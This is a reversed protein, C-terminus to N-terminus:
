GRHLGGRTDDRLRAVEEEVARRVVDRVADALQERLNAQLSALAAEVEAWLTQAIRADFETDIRASLDNLVSERVRVAFADYDFSVPTSANMLAREDVAAVVPDSSQTPVSRTDGTENSARTQELGTGAESSPALNTGDSRAPTEMPESFPVIRPSTTELSEVDAAARDSLPTTLPIYPELGPHPETGIVLQDASLLEDLSSETIPDTSADRPGRVPLVGSRGSGVRLVQTLVPLDDDEDGMDIVDSM